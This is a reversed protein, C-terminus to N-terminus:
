RYRNILEQLGATSQNHRLKYYTTLDPVIQQILSQYERRGTALATARAYAEIISDLLGESKQHAEQKAPGEPLSQYATVQADYESNLVRGLLAFSTPDRPRLTSAKALRAKAAVNNGKSLYLISIQQYLRGLHQQHATWTEDNMGAPQNGAEILAIAREGYQLSVDEYRRNKKKAAESGVSTMQELVLLNDPNNALLEAALQFAEDTRDSKVYAELAIPKLLDREAPATFITQAREVLILAADSNRVKRLESTVLEAIKLRSSSRPFKAFFEEAAALKTTPNTALNVASM